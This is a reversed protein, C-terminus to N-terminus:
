ALLAAIGVELATGFGTEREEASMDQAHDFLHDSVTCVTLAQKGEQAACAYLGAAEMDVGLTGLARLKNMVDPAELYFFDSSYMAGTRVNAGTGAVLERAKAVAGMLMETSAALSLTVGPVLLTAVGSNTHASSAIAVDRVHVSAAIGGCTGVRVIREVGYFRYLETAYISLSPIGMGSAMATIPEGEYKGTWVGIGRVDSVLKADTFYNKAIREARKPDGPMVVIPAIQGPAAANHPTAM